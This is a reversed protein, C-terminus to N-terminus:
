RKRLRFIPHRGRFNRPNRTIIILPPFGARLLVPPPSLHLLFCGFPGSRGRLSNALLRPTLVGVDERAASLSANRYTFLNNRM